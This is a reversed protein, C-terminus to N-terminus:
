RREAGGFVPALAHEVVALFNLGEAVPDVVVQRSPESFRRARALREQRHDAAYRSHVTASKVFLNNTAIATYSIQHVAKDTDPQDLRVRQVEGEELEIVIESEGGKEEVRVPRNVTPETRPRLALVCGFVDRNLTEAFRQGGRELQVLM